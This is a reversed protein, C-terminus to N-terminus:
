FHNSVACLVQQAHSTVQVQQGGPRLHQPQGKDIAATIHRIAPPLAQLEVTSVRMRHAQKSIKYIDECEMIDIRM